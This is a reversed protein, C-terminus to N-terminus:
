NNEIFFGHILNKALFAPVVTETKGATLYVGM